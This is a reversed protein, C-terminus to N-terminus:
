IRLPEILFVKKVNSVLENVLPFLKRIEEAIRNVGHALCTVQVLKSYFIKINQGAKVM